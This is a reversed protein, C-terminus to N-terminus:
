QHSRTEAEDCQRDVQVFCCCHFQIIGAFGQRGEHHEHDMTDYDHTYICLVRMQNLRVNHYNRM